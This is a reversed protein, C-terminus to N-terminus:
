KFLVVDVTEPATLEVKVLDGDQKWSLPGNLTSVVNKIKQTTRLTLTTAREKPELYYAFNNLTIAAQGDKEFLCVETLPESYEIRQPGLTTQAPKVIIPMRELLYRAGGQATAKYLLGPQIGLLLARGKGVTNIVAACAGDKYTAASKGSVPELVYKLGIVEATLAPTLDTEQLTIVDIPKHEALSQPHWSGESVAAFKQRAGFLSEAADTPTNSEDRLATGAIGVLLGGAEVWRRIAALTQSEFNHGQIYLAKYSALLEDTCDEELLLEAPIHAHALALFQLLRDTQFGANGGNWIEHCRNYLLGVRRPERKGLALLEDAPGMAHTGRAIQKYVDPRESWFCSGEAGAYQPGWSFADLWHICRAVLSFFKNDSGGTGGVVYFGAPLGGRVRAACEVWAAYYSVVDFGTFGAGGERSAWCEGWAMNAGGRRTLAFWDSGNMHQGFMTPHPSFNCYTHVKPFIKEAARTLQAYYMATLEFKFRASDYYLRREHLGPREPAAAMYPLDDVELVGYYEDATKNMRKLRARLYDHFAKRCTELSNISEAGVVAGIEDGMGIRVQPPDSENNKLIDEAKKRLSAEFNREAAPDLPDHSKSLYQSDLAGIYVSPKGFKAALSKDKTQLDNIGLLALMQAAVERDAAAASNGTMIRILRTVPNSGAAGLQELAATGWEFHRRHADAASEFRTMANPDRMGWAGDPQNTGSIGAMSTSQLPIMCVAVNEEIGPSITKIVASAMPQWALQVEGVGRHVNKFSFHATAWPGGGHAWPGDMVDETIEVWRSWEGVAMSPKGSESVFGQKDRTGLRSYWLPQTDGKPIRRWHYGFHVPSVSWSKVDAPAERVRVRCWTRYLNAEDLMITKSPSFSKSASIVVGDVQAGTNDSELAFITTGAKLKLDVFEWVMIKGSPPKTRSIEDEFRFHLKKEQEAGSAPGLKFVGYEHTAENSGSLKLTVPRSQAKEAIYGLWVRYERTEPIKVLTTAAGKGVSTVLTRRPTEEHAAARWALGAVDMDKPPRQPAVGVWRYLESYHTWKLNDFDAADTALDKQFEDFVDDFKDNKAKAAQSSTQFGLLACCLCTIAILSIRRAFGPQSSARCLLRPACATAQFFSEFFHFRHGTTKLTLRLVFM